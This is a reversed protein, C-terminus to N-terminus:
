GPSMEDPGFSRHVIIARATLGAREYLNKTERDGPFALADIGSCRASLAWAEAAHVLGDGVGIGRAEPHVYVFDIQALLRGDPLERRGGLLVGVPVDDVCGALVVKSPDDLRSQLTLEFPRSPGDELLWLDTGRQDVLGATGEDMLQALSALDAATAPRASLDV